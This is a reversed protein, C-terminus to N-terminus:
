KSLNWNWNVNASNTSPNLTASISSSNGTPTSFGVTGQGNIGYATQGAQYKLGVGSLSPNSLSGSYSVNLNNSSQANNTSSKLSSNIPQSIENSRWMNNNDLLLNGGNVLVLDGDVVETM